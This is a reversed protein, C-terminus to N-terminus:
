GVWHRRQHRVRGSSAPQASHLLGGTGVTRQWAGAWSFRKLRTWYQWKFLYLSKLGILLRSERFGRGWEQSPKVSYVQNHCQSGLLSAGTLVWSFGGCTASGRQSAAGLSLRAFRKKESEYVRRMFGSIWMKMHKWFGLGFSKQNEQNKRKRHPVDTHAHRTLTSSNGHTHFQEINNNNLNKEQETDM